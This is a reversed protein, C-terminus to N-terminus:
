RGTRIGGAVELLQGMDSKAIFYSAVLVDGREKAFRLGDIRYAVMREKPHKIAPFTRRPFSRPAEAAESSVQVDHIPIDAPASQDM